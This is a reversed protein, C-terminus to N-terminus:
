FSYLHEEKLVILANGIEFLNVKSRRLLERLEGVFPHDDKDKM